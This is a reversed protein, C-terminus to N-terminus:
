SPRATKIKKKRQADGALAITALAAGDDQFKAALVFAPLQSERQAGSQREPEVL